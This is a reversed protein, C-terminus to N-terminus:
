KATRIAAELARSFNVPFEKAFTDMVPDVVTSERRIRARPTLVYMPILGAPTRQALVLSGSRTRIVVAHQLNRPRRDSPIIDRENPRAFRTPVALYKGLPLKTGGTEHLDLWPAGSRVEAELKSKDAPRFRVGFPSSPLYWTSRVTFFSLIARISADQADRATETLAVASAFQLQEDLSAVAEINGEIEIQLFEGSM